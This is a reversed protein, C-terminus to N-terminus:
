EDRAYSDHIIKADNIEKLIWDQYASIDIEGRGQIMLTLLYQSCNRVGEFYGEHYDSDSMGRDRIRNLTIMREAATKRQDQTDSKQAM